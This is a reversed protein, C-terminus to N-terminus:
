PPAWTVMPATETLGYGTGIRWGLAELRWALEADLPAGGSVIDRLQPGIRRHLPRFLTRGVRLGLRRRLFLSVRLGARFLLFPIRGAARAQALIGDHLAAFFRPVGIALTAGGRQLAEIVRPGTLAEPLIIRLGLRLPALL